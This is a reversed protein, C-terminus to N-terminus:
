FQDMERFYSLFERYINIESFLFARLILRVVFFVSSKRQQDIGNEASSGRINRGHQDSEHSSVSVM